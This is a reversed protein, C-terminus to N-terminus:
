WKHHLKRAHDILQAHTQFEEGCGSCAVESLRHHVQHYHEEFQKRTEFESGCIPCRRTHEEQMPEKVEERIPAVLDRSNVQQKSGAVNPAVTEGL